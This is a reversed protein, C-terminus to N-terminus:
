LGVEQRRMAITLEADAIQAKAVHELHLQNAVAAERTQKAWEDFAGQVSSAMAKITVPPQQIAGPQAVVASSAPVGLPASAMVSALQVGTKQSVLETAQTITLVDIDRRKAHGRSGLLLGRATPAGRHTYKKALGLEPVWKQNATYFRGTNKDVLIFREAAAQIQKQRHAERPNLPPPEAAVQPEPDPTPTPERPPMPIPAPISAIEEQSLAIVPKEEKPAKPKFKPAPKQHAPQKKKLEFFPAVLNRFKGFQKTSLKCDSLKALEIKGHNGGPLIQVTDDNVVGVLKAQLCPTMVGNKIRHLITAGILARAMKTTLAQAM